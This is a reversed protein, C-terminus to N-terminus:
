LGTKSKRQTKYLSASTHDPLQTAPILYLAYQYERKIPRTSYVPGYQRCCVEMLRLITTDTTRVFFAHHNHPTIDQLYAITLEDPAVFSYQIDHQRQHFALLSTVNYDELHPTHIFVLHAHSSPPLTGLRWLVDDFGQVEAFRQNYGKVHIGFYYYVQAIALLTGISLLAIIPLGPVRHHLFPLRMDPVLLVILIRIGVALVLAIVPFVVVYRATESINHLLSNGIAAAVLWVLILIMGPQWQIKSQFLGWVASWCGALFFPLVPATVLGTDGSYFWDGPPRQTYTWLATIFRETSAHLQQLLDGSLLAERESESIFMDELRPTFRFGWIQWLIYLPLAVLVFACVFRVVGWGNVRRGAQRELLLWVPLFGMVLLPYLLRGGEYFYQTFGLLAGALAFGWGCRLARVLCFLALTGFLPDAINNIGLRSFHIHPPFTALMLAALFATKRDFLEQALLWVALVTGTGFLVSVVRLGTFTAGFLGVTLNQLLPYVCPFATVTGHQFLIREEPPEWLRTVASISHIEDVFHPINYELDVGRLGFALLSILLLPFFRGDPSYKQPLQVGDMGVVLFLSGGVLLSLQQYATLPPPFQHSYILIGLLLGGSSFLSLRLVQVMIPSPTGPIDSQMRITTCISSLNQDRHRKLAIGLFLGGIIALAAACGANDLAGPRFGYAAGLFFICALAAAGWSQRTIIRYNFLPPM